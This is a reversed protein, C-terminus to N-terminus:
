LLRGIAYEGLAIIALEALDSASEGRSAREKILTLAKELRKERESPAAPKSVKEYFAGLSKSEEPTMSRQPGIVEDTVQEASCFVAAATEVSTLSREEARVEAFEAAIAREMREPFLSGSRDWWNGMIIKHARELDTESPAAPEPHRVLIEKLQKVVGAGEYDNEYDCILGAIEARLDDDM